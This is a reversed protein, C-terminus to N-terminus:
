ARALVLVVLTYYKSECWHKYSYFHLQQISISIDFHVSISFCTSASFDVSTDTNMFFILVMLIVFTLVFIYKTGTPKHTININIQFKAYPIVILTYFLISKQRSHLVIM